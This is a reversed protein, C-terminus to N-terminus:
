IWHNREIKNDTDDVVVDAPSNFHRRWRLLQPSTSCFYHLAATSRIPSQYHSCFLWYFNQWINQCPFQCWQCRFWPALITKPMGVPAKPAAVDGVTDVTININNDDNFCQTNNNFQERHRRSNDETSTVRSTHAAPPPPNSHSYCPLEEYPTSTSPSPEWAWPIIHLYTTATAGCCCHNRICCSSTHHPPFIASAAFVNLIKKLKM